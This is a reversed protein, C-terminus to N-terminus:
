AHEKLAADIMLQWAEKAGDGGLNRDEGNNACWGAQVMDETPERMAEIAFRAAHEHEKWHKDVYQRMYDHSADWAFEDSARHRGPGTIKSGHSHAIARAVKEVMNM